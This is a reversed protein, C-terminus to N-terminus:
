QGYALVTEYIELLKEMNKEISFGEEVKQRANAGMRACIEADGLAKELGKKLSRVNEPLVLIGTKEDEIMQPIGGVNSAVIACSYAMAELISVPQGEFYSPLVFIDSEALYRSKEEGTIWGLDVVHSSHRAALEKLEKEEWIGGLYLKMDPYKKVLEAAAELLEEIGKARCLRGLFLIRRQGYQKRKAPPICISNPLVVIKNEEVIGSFFQKAVPSLVLFSDAMSFIRQVSKRGRSNLQKYYFNEFDGGHQHIVIRKKLLKAAKIFFSKRFYSSDSAVNVHVIRYFPAKVWFLIFAAAAKFLKRLKNGEVMTGIYCLEIKKDLGAEYYNNVVGSIGGHVSRDPGIMLVKIKDDREM